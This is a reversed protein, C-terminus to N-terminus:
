TIGEIIKERAKLRKELVQGVIFLQRGSGHMLWDYCMPKTEENKDSLYTNYAIDSCLRTHRAVKDCLCQMSPMVIPYQSM